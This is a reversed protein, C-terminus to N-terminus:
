ALDNVFRGALYGHTLAMGHSIGPCVLPYAQKFRGGVTNGALYLGPIVAGAADLPQLRENCVLGAFILMPEDPNATWQAYYPPTDIHTLREGRKGFDLDRGQTALENYRRITRLFRDPPVKMKSALAELTDAQLTAGRDLRDQFRKRVAPTDKFLRLFGVGMKPLDEPWSADVVLWCGGQEETQRALAETDLDENCFREGHRNVLLFPNTGLAHSMDNLPAHPTKEMRAGIWMAMQHGEGMSTPIMGLKLNCGPYYKDVMDRNASYDGTALIIGKRAAFETYGGTAADKAIVSTVQGSEGDRILRAAPTKYFFRVGRAKAKKEVIALWKRQNAESDGLRHCTPYEDTYEEGHRWSAPAGGPNPWRDIILTPETPMVLFTELGEGEVMDMAWNMVRASNDAWLRVVHHHIRGGQVKMLDRIIREPDVRIGLQEHLRSNLATVDGGRASFAPAKELLAVSAGAEAASLAATLGAIGAGAVVVDFTQTGTIEARPIPPPPNEFPYRRPDLPAQALAPAVTVGGGALAAAGVGAATGKIFGRRNVKTSM